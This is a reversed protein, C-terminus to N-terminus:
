SGDDDEPEEKVSQLASSSVPEEKMPVATSSSTTGDAGLATVDFCSALDLLEHMRAATIAKTLLDAINFQGELYKFTVRGSAHLDQLWLHRLDVHRLRGPGTRRSATTIAGTSDSLLKLEVKFGCECLLQEIGILDQGTASMSVLECEASSLAVTMQTKSTAALIGGDLVLVSGTVSRGGDGGGWSADSVGTLRFVQLNEHLREYGGLRVCMRWHMTHLLYRCLHKLNEWDKETSATVRRSLERVCNAIDMRCPTAWLLMGIAARYISARNPDM